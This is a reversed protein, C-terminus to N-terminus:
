RIWGFGFLCIWRWWEMIQLYFDHAEEVFEFVLYGGFEFGGEAAARGGEGFLGKFFGFGVLEALVNAHDGSAGIM